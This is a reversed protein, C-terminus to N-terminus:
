PTSHPGVPDGNRSNFGDKQNEPPDRLPGFGGVPGYTNEQGGEAEKVGKPAQDAKEADKRVIYSTLDEVPVPRRELVPDVLAAVLRAVHRELKSTDHVIKWASRSRRDCWLRPQRMLFSAVDAHKVKAFVLLDLLVKQAASPDGNLHDTILQERLPAAAHEQAPTLPGAKRYLGSPRWPRLRRPGAPM